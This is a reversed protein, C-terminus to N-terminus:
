PVGGAAAGSVSLLDAVLLPFQNVDHQRVENEPAVEMRDYIGAADYSSEM